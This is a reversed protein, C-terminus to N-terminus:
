PVIPKSFVLWSEKLKPNLKFFLEESILPKISLKRWVTGGSLPKYTQYGMYVPNSILRQKLYDFSFSGKHQVKNTQRKLMINVGEENFAKYTQWLSGTKEYHLFVRKVFTAEKEIIELKRAVVKDGVLKRILKYGLPAKLLLTGEKFRMDLGVKIRLGTDKSEKEALLMLLKDLFEGKIFMNEIASYFEVDSRIEQREGVWLDANRGIRDLKKVIVLKVDLNTKLALKMDQWGKRNFHKGTVKDSFTGTVEWGKRKAIEELYMDQSEISNSEKDEKDSYRLYKYCKIGM